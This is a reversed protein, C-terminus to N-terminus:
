EWTGMKIADNKVTEMMASFEEPTMDPEEYKEKTMDGRGGFCQKMFVRTADAGMGENLLRIGTAKVEIPNRVDVAIM